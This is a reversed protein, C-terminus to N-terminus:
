AMRNSLVGGRSGNGKVHFRVLMHERNMRMGGEGPEDDGEHAMDWTSDRSVRATGLCTMSVGEELRQFM